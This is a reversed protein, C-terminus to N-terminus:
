NYARNLLQAILPFLIWPILYFISLFWFAVLFTIGYGLYIACYVIDYIVLPITFYFAYWYSIKLRKKANIPKLVKTIIISIPIILVIVFIIMHQNSYQLYYDPMGVLFFIIWVITAIILIRIHYGIRMNLICFLEGLSQRM